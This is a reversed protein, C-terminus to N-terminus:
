EGTAIPRDASRIWESWSGAYLRSGSLGAIEMALLNHCANVGSGCAHVVRKPALGGLASEFRARLAEAPLFRGDAGLNGALPLNIAGPIHGAVQDIPELEGRFREPARADVVQISGDALASELGQTTVWARDNPRPVFRRAEPAPLEPTLTRGEAVWRQLGGDLMSVRSHGLWRLLWWLRVAFAGGADDYVAVPVSDDVGWAGLKPALEKPDPLPHRGTEPGIPGSLDRDLDAFRAGPIHGEGYGRAGWGPDMLNFRCDFVVLAPDSVLTACDILLPHNCPIM